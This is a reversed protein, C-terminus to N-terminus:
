VALSQGTTQGSIPLTRCVNNGGPLQGMRKRSGRDDDDDDDDSMQLDSDDAVVHFQLPCRPASPEDPFQWRLHIQRYWDAAL